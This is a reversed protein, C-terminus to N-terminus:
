FPLTGRIQVGDSLNPFPAQMMSIAIL